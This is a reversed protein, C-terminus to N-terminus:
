LTANISLVNNLKADNVKSQKSAERLPTLVRLEMRNRLRNHKSKKTQKWFEGVLEIDNQEM